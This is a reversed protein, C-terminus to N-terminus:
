SIMLRIEQKLRPWAEFDAALVMERARRALRHRGVFGLNEILAQLAWRAGLLDHRKLALEIEDLKAAGNEKFCDLVDAMLDPDRALVGLTSDSCLCVM